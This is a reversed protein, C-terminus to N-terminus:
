SKSALPLAGEKSSPLFQLLQKRHNPDLNPAAGIFRRFIEILEEPIEKRASVLISAAHKHASDRPEEMLRGFQAPQEIGAEVYDSFLTASFRIVKEGQFVYHLECHEGWHMWFPQGDPEAKLFGSKAAVMRLASIEIHFRNLIRSQLEATPSVFQCGVGRDSVHVVKAAVYYKEQDFCVSGEITHGEQLSGPASGAEFAIGSVSLNEIPWQEGANGRWILGHLPSPKIRPARAVWARLSHAAKASLETEGQNERNENQTSLWGQLKKLLAMNERPYCLEYYTIGMFVM